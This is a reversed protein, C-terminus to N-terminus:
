RDGELGFAFLDDDSEERGRFPILIAEWGDLKVLNTRHCYNCAVSVPMLGHGLWDDMQQLHRADEGVAFYFANYSKLFDQNTCSRALMHVSSDLGQRDLELYQGVTLPMFTCSGLGPFQKLTVPLAPARIYDFALIGTDLNAESLRQCDGFQCQFHATFETTGFTSIKRQFGLYLFDSVTLDEKPFGVTTIGELIREFKERLTLNAENIDLVDGFTYVRYSVKAGPPYAMMRSPLDDAEKRAVPPESEVRVKAISEKTLGVSDLLGTTDPSPPPPRSSTGGTPIKPNTPGNVPRYGQGGVWPPNGPEVAM